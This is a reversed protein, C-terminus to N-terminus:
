KLEFADLEEISWPGTREAIAARVRTVLEAGVPDAGHGWARRLYTAVAAVDGDSFAMAPMDGNWVKGAV